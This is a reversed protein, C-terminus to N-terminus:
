ENVFPHSDQAVLLRFVSRVEVDYQPLINNFRKGFRLSSM